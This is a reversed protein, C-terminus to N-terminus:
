GSLKQEIAKFLAAFGSEIHTQLTLTNMNKLLNTLNPLLQRIETYLDIDERFGQLNASSVTKLAEELKKIEEEWYQVYKLRDIPKYIRADDLVIPFIRDVFKQHKAIQLLEFMCNESKLYKESIIVIACKGRGIREMFDKIRDKFGMEQKDRIITVGKESFAQEVQDAINESEGGWAYSIFIAKGKKDQQLHQVPWTQLRPEQDAIDESSDVIEDILRRVAVM